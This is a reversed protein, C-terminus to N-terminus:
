LAFGRASERGEAGSASRDTRSDTRSDTQSGSADTGSGPEDHALAELVPVAAELAARDQASLAGVRRRLASSRTFSEGQVLARGAETADVLVARGDEPDPSRRVLGSDELVGIIRTMTPAAVGERAALDGLRSPGARSLSALASLAGPSIDASGTRRLTRVLRGVVVYLRTALDDPAPSTVDRDEQM